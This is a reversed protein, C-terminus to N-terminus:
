LVSRVTDTLQEIMARTHTAFVAIRLAGSRPLGAYKSHYAVVIGASMLAAQVRRMNAADGLTLCIIPAPSDNTELGLQRLGRKLQTANRQLQKVMDANRAVLRLAEAAAAAAPVPPPSAGDYYHSAGQIRRIFERSGCVIGGYAGLAKSLTATTFRQVFSADGGSPLPHNVESPQYGFHEFTGRGQIGLTGFGHCDDLCIKPGAYSRLVEEYDPVPAITGMASFVGDSMVLPRQGARLNRRLTDRLADPDAHRFTRVPLGSLQSAEQVSYHAAEDLFVVDVSQSLEAILLHNGVYGSPFYFAAEAACFRAGEQEVDLTPPSDGYGARSTATGLGYREMAECAARILAPHGQLGLYGTGAFYLYHRGDIVTEAGPASQMIPM